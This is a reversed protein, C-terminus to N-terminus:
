SMIALVSGYMRYMRYLLVSRRVRVVDNKQQKSGTQRKSAQQKSAQKSAKWDYRTAQPKPLPSLSLSLSLSLSPFLTLPWAWCCFHHTFTRAHTHRPHTHYAEVVDFSALSSGSKIIRTYSPNPQRLPPPNHAVRRTSISLFPYAAQEM